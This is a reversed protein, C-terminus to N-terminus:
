EEDDEEVIIKLTVVKKNFRFRQEFYGRGFVQEYNICFEKIQTAMDKKEKKTVGITSLPMEATQYEIKRECKNVPTEEEHPQKYWDALEELTPVKHEKEEEKKLISKPTIEISKFVGEIKRELAKTMVKSGKLCQALYHETVGCCDALYKKGVALEKMKQAIQLLNM